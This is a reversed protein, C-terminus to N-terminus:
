GLLPNISVDLRWSMAPGIARALRSIVEDVLETQDLIVPIAAVGALLTEVGDLDEGGAVAVGEGVNDLGDLGGTALHLDVGTDPVDRFPLELLVLTSKLLGDTGM